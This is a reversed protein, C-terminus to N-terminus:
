EIEFVGILSNFDPFMVVGTAYEYTCVGHLLTSRGFSVPALNTFLNGGKYLVSINKAMKVITRWQVVDHGLFGTCCQLGTETHYIEM